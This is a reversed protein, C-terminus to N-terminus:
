YTIKSFTSNSNFQYLGSLVLNGSKTIMINYNWSINHSIMSLPTEVDDTMVIKFQTKNLSYASALRVQGTQFGTNFRLTTIKVSINDNGANKYIYLRWHSYPHHPETIEFRRSIYATWGSGSISFTQVTTFIVGDNSGQIYFIGPTANAETYYCAMDVSILTNSTPYEVTIYDDLIDSASALSTSWGDNNASDFAKWSDVNDVNASVSWGTGSPWDTNTTITSLSTFNPTAKTVVTSNYVPTVHVQFDDSTAGNDTTVTWGDSTATVATINITNAGSSGLSVWSGSYGEFSDVTTNYRLLGKMLTSPRQLDTGAPTLIASTSLIDLAVRAVSTGIGVNGSFVPSDIKVRSFAGVTVIEIFNPCIVKKSSSM